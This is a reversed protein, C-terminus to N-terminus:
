GAEFNEPSNEFENQHGASNSPLTLAWDEQPLGM